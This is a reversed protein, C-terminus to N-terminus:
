TSLVGRQIPPQRLCVTRTSHQYGIDKVYEQLAADDYIGMERTIAAHNERGIGIEQAQSMTVFERNGTVPNTACAVLSVVLVFLGTARLLDGCLRM